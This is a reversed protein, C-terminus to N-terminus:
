GLNEGSEALKAQQMQHMISQHMMLWGNKVYGFM